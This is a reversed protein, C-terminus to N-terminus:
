VALLSTGPVSITSVEGEVQSYGGAVPVHLFSADVEVSSSPTQATFDITGIVEGDNLAFEDLPITERILAHPYPVTRPRTRKWVHEKPLM